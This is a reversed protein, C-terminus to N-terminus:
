ESDGCECPYSLDCAKPLAIESDVLSRGAFDLRRFFEGYLARWGGVGAVRFARANAEALTEATAQRGSGSM